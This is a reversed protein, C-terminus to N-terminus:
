VSREDGKSDLWGEEEAAQLGVLLRKGVEQLLAVQVREVLQKRYLGKCIQIFLCKAADEVFQTAQPGFAWVDHDGRIFHM